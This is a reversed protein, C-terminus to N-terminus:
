IHANCLQHLIDISYVADVEISVDTISSTSFTFTEMEVGCVFLVFFHVDFRERQFYVM